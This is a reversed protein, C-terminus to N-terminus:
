RRRRLFGIIGGLGSLLALLSSPEPVADYFYTVKATGSASTAFGLELTGGGSGTSAGNAFMPLDIYDVGATSFLTLDSGLSSTASNSLDATLGNYTRGSTGGFDSV